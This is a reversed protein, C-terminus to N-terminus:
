KREKQRVLVYLLSYSRDRWLRIFIRGKRERDKWRLSLKGKMRIHKGREKRKDKRKKRKKVRECGRGEM